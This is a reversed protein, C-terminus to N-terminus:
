PAISLLSNLAELKPEGEHFDFARFYRYQEEESEASAILEALYRCAKPSRCRWVIDRGAPTNWDDGVRELWADFLTDWQKDAAIGLAELYWRDQGDHQLALEVWLKTALQSERHRLAIAVERRVKPSPDRVLKEVTLLTDDGHQRAM